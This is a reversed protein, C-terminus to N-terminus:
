DKVVAKSLYEAVGEHTPKMAEQGPHWGLPCVEGYQEFHQLADVIRIAEDISRGLPMDNVLQHRVIGQKDILFLGRYAVLEGIVQLKGHEDIYREGALVDFADAITKNTDAVLPYSVGKIGGDSQEKQCWAWHSYETDTSCGVVVTNRRAFEPLAAQFGLLETPCVFTFDKPYFFFVVYKQGIYDQLSFDNVIEGDVVATAKFVPAQKGVLM